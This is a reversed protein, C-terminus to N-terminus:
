LQKLLDDLEGPAFNMQPFDSDIYRTERNEDLCYAILARLEDLLAQQLSEILARQHLESGYTWHINLCGRVVLVNVEFVVERPDDPHRAAGTAERAPSFGEVAFLNDTQGIYNFRIDCRQGPLTKEVYRLYGYGVGGNPVDRVCTKIAHIRDDIAADAPVQLNLPYFATLWGLTQSFDGSVATHADAFDGRGHAELEIKYNGFGCWGELAAVFATLLVEEVKAPYAQPLRQLLQSTEEESLSVSVTRAGSMLNEANTTDCPLSTIPAAEVAQWYEVESMLGNLDTPLSPLYDALPTPLEFPPLEDSHLAYQYHRRLDELLIRWSVGDVILHHCVVLLRRVPGQPTSLDFYVLSWTKGQEIDLSAHTDTGVSEIVRAPADTQQRVIRLRQQALAPEVFQRWQGNESRYRARLADHRRALVDITKSLASEDLEVDLALLVSQNWHSRHALPLEFFWWQAPTLPVEGTFPEATDRTIDGRRACAVLEAITPNEFVDRPTIMFGEAQARAVLQLALISDGGLAFFNDNPGISEQSLPDRNLVGHWIAQMPALHAAIVGTDNSTASITPPKLERRAIKGNPLKPLQNSHVFIAPLMFAPLREALASRWRAAFESDAALTRTEVSAPSTAVYAVLTPQNDRLPWARVAAETIEPLALLANKNTNM